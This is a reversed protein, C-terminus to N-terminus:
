AFAGEHLVEAGESAGQGWGQWSNPAYVPIEKIMRMSPVGVLYVSGAHGGSTLMTFEDYKGPPTFTKLAAAAEDPSLGRALAIGELSAPAGSAAGAAPPAASGSGGGTCGSLMAAVAIALVTTEHRM